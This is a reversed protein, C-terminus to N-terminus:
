RGRYNINGYICIKKINEAQFYCPNIDLSFGQPYPVCAYDHKKRNEDIPYIGVVLYKKNDEAIFVTGLPLIDISDM